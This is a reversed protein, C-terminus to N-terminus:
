KKLGDNILYFFNSKSDRKIEPYVDKLIDYIKFALNPEINFSNLEEKILEKLESKKM